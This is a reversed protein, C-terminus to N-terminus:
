KHVLKGTNHGNPAYAIWTRMKKLTDTDLTVEHKSFLNDATSTYFAKAINAHTMRNNQILRDFIKQFQFFRRIYFCNDHDAKYKKTKPDDKDYNAGLKCIRTKYHHAHWSKTKRMSSIVGGSGRHHAAAGYIMQNLTSYKTFHTSIIHRVHAVALLSNIYPDARSDVSRFRATNMDELKQRDQAYERRATRKREKYDAELLAVAQTISKRVTRRTTALYTKAEQRLKQHKERNLRRLQRSRAKGKLTKKTMGVDYKHQAIIDKRLALYDRRCEQATAIRTKRGTRRVERFYDKMMARRKQKYERGLRKLDRDHRRTFHELQRTHAKLAPTRLRLRRNGTFYPTGDKRRVILEELPRGKKHKRYYAPHYFMLDDM